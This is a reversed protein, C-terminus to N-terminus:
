SRQAAMGCSALEAKPASHSSVALIDGVNQLSYGWRNVRKEFRRVLLARKLRGRFSRRRAEWTQFYKHNADKVVATCRHNPLQLYAFIQALQKAPDAVFEEYKVIMVNKLLPRDADFMEHCVLWHKVLSHVSTRSWKQTALSAAIPHRTIIVFFCDPFLAQCFRTRLLSPPSKELLVPKTTDWYRKWESLLKVRNEDSVLPSRETLRAAPHFGFRGPGGYASAPLFVTQLHQGEDEPVGTDKFGSILPHESLCDHLISTGSRHLGAVFVFRHETM